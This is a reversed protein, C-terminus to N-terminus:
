GAAVHEHYYNLETELAHRTREREAHKVVSIASSKNSTQKIVTIYKEHARKM